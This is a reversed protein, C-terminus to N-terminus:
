QNKQDFAADFASTNPKFDVKRTFAAAEAGGHVRDMRGDEWEISLPGAYNNAPMKDHWYKKISAKAKGTIAFSAWYLSPSKKKSRLIEVEDGNNLITQLPSEKGNIKVGICSDGIDSHVAYAFDIVTANSPLRIVAGKPTFCFVQDQFLQLKTYELDLELLVKEM